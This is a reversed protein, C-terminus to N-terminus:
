VSEKWRYFLVWYTKDRQTGTLENEDLYEKIFQNLEAIDKCKKVDNFEKM